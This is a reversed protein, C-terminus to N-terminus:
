WELAYENSVIRWSLINIEAAIYHDNEEPKEPYIVEEPNYVPTGLGAIKTIKTDYIHNRVVGKTANEGTGHHIIEYYYYTMGDKWVLAWDVINKDKLNKNIDDASITTTVAKDSSSYWTKQAAEDTLQAYVYCNNKSNEEDEPTAIVIKLDSASLGTRTTENGSYYNYGNATLQSLINAKLAPLNDAQTDSYTDAFHAGLHRVITFNSGDAKCLQGKLIVKTRNIPSETDYDLANENTYLANTFSTGINTYNVNYKNAANQSNIAWFSRHAFAGAGNWWDSTWTPDIAKVLRGETTEATLSWGNLKLYVQEGGVKLNNGEKDKLALKNEDDFGIADGLSVKVKAVSREVYITVPNKKADDPKKQLHKSEIPVACVETKNDGGYVSNFMVFKGKSTLGTAAYDAVVAKLETLSMSKDQLGTPNLVAAIRQPLKDGDKTSIVITAALVSETDDGDKDDSQDSDGPLWDYYNVYSGSLLKVPAIAGNATFFYFRVKEVDNEVDTGDEYGAAARTGSVDSSMLNVAMYSTNAEGNGNDEGNPAIEEQSCGALFLSALVSMFLLNRKM